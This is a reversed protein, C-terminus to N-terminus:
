HILSKIKALNKQFSERTKAELNLRLLNETNSPRLSFWWDSFEMRLGDLRSIKDARKQYNQELGHLVTMKDDIKFNIEGSCYYRPMEDIWIALDVPLSAAANIFEIAGLIGSDWVADRFRFYYHGSIEAGFRIKKQTMLKKVFYHGVRSNVVKKDDAKIIERALYGHRVDLVIPGKFRQSILASTIDGSVFRGRSDLFFVRDGDADFIAGLDAKRGHVAQRLDNLADKAMPDPGHAPFRGDPKENILFIELKGSVLNRLIKIVAGTTGNSCDFVVRLKRRPQLHKALFDVYTKIYNTKAM